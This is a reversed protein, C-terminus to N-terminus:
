QDNQAWSLLTRQAEPYVHTIWDDSFWDRITLPFTRELSPNTCAPPSPTQTSPAIGYNTMQPLWVSMMSSRSNTWSPHWGAKVISRLIMEWNTFTNQVMLFPWPPCFTGSGPWGALIQFAICNSSSEHHDLPANCNMLCRKLNMCSMVM